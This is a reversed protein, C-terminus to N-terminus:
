LCGVILPVGNALDGETCSISCPENALVCACSYTAACACAPPTPLAECTGHTPYNAVYLAPVTRPEGGPVSCTNSRMTVQAACAADADQEGGGDQKGAEPTPTFTDTEGGADSTAGEIGSDDASAEVAGGERQLADAQVGATFPDGGCGMVLALAAVLAARMTWGVLTRGEPNVLVTRGEGVRGANVEVALDRSAARYCDIADQEVAFVRTRTVVGVTVKVSWVM